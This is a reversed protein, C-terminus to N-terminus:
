SIHKTKYFIHWVPAESNLIGEGLFSLPVGKQADVPVITFNTFTVDAGQAIGCDSVNVPGGLALALLAAIYTGRDIM